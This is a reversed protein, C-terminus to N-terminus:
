NKERTIRIYDDLPCLQTLKSFPLIIQKPVPFMEAPWSPVTKASQSATAEHAIGLHRGMERADYMENESLEIGITSTWAPKSLV